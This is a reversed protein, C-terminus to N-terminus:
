TGIYKPCGAGHVLRYISRRKWDHGTAKDSMVYVDGHEVRIDCPETSFEGEVSHPPRWKFRLTTTEGLSACIVIRREADGHFGIGCKRQDYYHNGEGQLNVAKPGFFTPLKQRFASLLPVDQWSIVSSVKYDDTHIRGVEGFVTNHRARLNLTKKFRADYYMKDYETQNQEALLRDAYGSDGMMANVGGKILLVAAQHEPKDQEGVPLRKHLLELQSLPGMLENSLVNSLEDVDFGKDVLGNGHKEGGARIESQEGFTLAYRSM